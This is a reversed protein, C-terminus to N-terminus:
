IKGTKLLELHENPLSGKLLSMENNKEKGGALLRNKAKAEAKISNLIRRENEAEKQQVIMM